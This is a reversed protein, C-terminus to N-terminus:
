VSGGAPLDVTLQSQSVSATQDPIPSLTLPSSIPAPGTVTTMFSRTVTTTGDSVTAAVTFTGAYTVAPRITLQSGSVSVTVPPNPPPQANWLLSPDVYYSTNLVAVLNSPSLLSAKTGGSRRLEGNPLIAYAHGSKSLSWK